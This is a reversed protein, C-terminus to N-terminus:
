IKNIQQCKYLYINLVSSIENDVELFVRINKISYLNIDDLLKYFKKTTEPRLM